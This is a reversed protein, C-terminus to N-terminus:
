EVLHSYSIRFTKYFSISWFGGTLHTSNENPILVRFPHQNKRPKITTHRTYQSLYPIKFM